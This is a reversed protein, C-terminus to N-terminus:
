KDMDGLGPVQRERQGTGRGHEPCAHGTVYKQLEPMMYLCVHRTATDGCGAKGV